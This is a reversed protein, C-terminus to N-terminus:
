IENQANRHGNQMLWEMAKYQGYTMNSRKAEKADALLGKNKVIEIQKQVKAYYAREKEHKRRLIDKCGPSACVKQRPSTPKFTNGYIMCSKESFNCKRKQGARM